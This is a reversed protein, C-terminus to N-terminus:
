GGLLPRTAPLARPPGRAAALRLALARVDVAGPARSGRTLVAPHLCRPGGTARRPASLPHSGRPRLPRPPPARRLPPPRPADSYTALDLPPASPAPPPPTHKRYSPM